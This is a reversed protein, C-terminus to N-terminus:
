PNEFNKYLKLKDFQIINLFDFELIYLNAEVNNQFEITLSKSQIEIKM